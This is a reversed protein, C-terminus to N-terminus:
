NYVHLPFCVAQAEALVFLEDEDSQVSGPYAIRLSSSPQPDSYSCCPQSLKKVNRNLSFFLGSLRMLQFALWTQLSYAEARHMSGPGVETM